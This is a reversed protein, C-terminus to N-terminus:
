IKIQIICIFVHEVQAVRASTSFDDVETRFSVGTVADWFLNFTPILADAFFIIGVSVAQSCEVGKTTFIKDVELPSDHSLSDTVRVLKLLFCNVLHDNM